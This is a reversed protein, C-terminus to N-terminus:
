LEANMCCERIVALYLEAHMGLERRVTVARFEYLVGKM